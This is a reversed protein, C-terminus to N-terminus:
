DFPFPHPVYDRRGNRPLDLEPCEGRWVIRVIESLPAAKRGRRLFVVDIGAKLLRRQEVLELTPWLEALNADLHVATSLNARADDLARQAAEAERRRQEGATLYAEMGLAQQARPDGALEALAARADSLALELQSLDEAHDQATARLDSMRELFSAVVLEELELGLATTCPAECRFTM